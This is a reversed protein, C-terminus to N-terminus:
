VTFLRKSTFLNGGSNNWTGNYRSVVYFINNQSLWHLQSCECVVYYPGWIVVTEYSTGCLKAIMQVFASSRVRHPPPTDIKLDLGQGGGRRTVYYTLVRASSHLVITSNEKGSWVDCVAMLIRQVTVAPSVV